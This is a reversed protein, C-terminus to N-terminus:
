SAESRGCRTRYLDLWIIWYDLFPLFVLDVRAWHDQYVLFAVSIIQPREGASAIGLNGASALFSSKFLKNQLFYLTYAFLTKGFIASRARFIRRQLTCLKENLVVVCASFLSFTGCKCVKAPCSGGFELICVLFVRHVWIASHVARQSLLQLGAFLFLDLRLM